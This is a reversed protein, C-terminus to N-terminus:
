TFLSDSQMGDETDFNDPFRKFTTFFTMIHPNRVQLIFFLKRKLSTNQQVTVIVGHEKIHYTSLHGQNPM